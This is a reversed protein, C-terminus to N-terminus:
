TDQQATTEAAVVTNEIHRRLFKKARSRRSKVTGSPVGQMHAVQRVTHGAVDILVLADRQVQPLQDLLDRLTLTWELNLHPDDVGTTELLSLGFGNDDLVTQEVMSARNIHDYGTNAVIRHLWTSLKADGRFKGLGQSAALLAEQLIDEADAETRAYRRAVWRLKSRHRAVIADFATDNGAKYDNVLDRDDVPDAPPRSRSRSGPAPPTGPTTGTGRTEPQAIGPSFSM